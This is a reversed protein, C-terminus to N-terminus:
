KEYEKKLVSFRHPVIAEYENFRPTDKTSVYIRITEAVDEAMANTAYGSVSVKDQDMASKWNMWKGKTTDQGWKQYSWAHGTEHIMSGAMVNDSPLSTTAADPYITVVGSAGATMYSHFNPTNYQVAWYADDPSTVANLLVTHIVARASKPLYSASKAAEKVTHNHLSADLAKPAIVDLKTKDQFKVKWKQADATKGKFAYNKIETPGSMQYKIPTTAVTEDALSPLADKGTIIGKLATAQQDETQGSLKAFTAALHHRASASLQNSEGGLLHCLITQDGTPLKTFGKLQKVAAVAASAEIPAMLPPMPHTTPRAGWASSWKLLIAKQDHDMGFHVSAPDFHLGWAELKIKLQARYSKIGAKTLKGPETSLVIDDGGPPPSPPDPKSQHGGGDGPGKPMHQTSHQSPNMADAWHSLAGTTQEAQPGIASHQSPHVGDAWHSLAGTAQGSHAGITATPTAKDTEQIAKSQHLAPSELLGPVLPNSAAPVKHLDGSTKRNRDHLLALM